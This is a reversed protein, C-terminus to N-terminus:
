HELECLVLKCKDSVSSQSGFFSGAPSKRTKKSGEGGGNASFQRGQGM